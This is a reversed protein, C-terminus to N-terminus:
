AGSECCRLARASCSALRRLQALVVEVNRPRQEGIGIDGNCVNGIPQPTDGAVSHRYRDAAFAAFLGAGQNRAGELLQARATEPRFNPDKSLTPSDIVPWFPFGLM